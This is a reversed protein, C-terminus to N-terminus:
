MGGWLSVEYVSMLKLGYFVPIFIYVISLYFLFMRGIGSGECGVGFVLRM